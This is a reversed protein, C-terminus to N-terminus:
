KNRYIKHNTNANTFVVDVVVHRERGRNEKIKSIHKQLLTPLTTVLMSLLKDKM